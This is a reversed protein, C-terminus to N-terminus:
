KVGAKEMLKLLYESRVAQTFGQVQDIGAYLVGILNGKKDFVPSGSAGHYSVATFGFTKLNDNRSITGDSVNAQIQTKGDFFYQGFPFGITLVAVGRDPHVAKIKSLPVPTVEEPIKSSRVKFIALDEDEGDSVKEVHCNIANKQDLYDGNPVMLSHDLVGTVKVQSIYQLAGTVEFKNYLDSLKAKYYDEAAALITLDTSFSTMESDWPCAMHRNSVIHGKDGIFFGTGSSGTSNEGNYQQITNGNVIVFEDYMHRTFRKGNWSDPDWLQSLDLTGCTVKFHYDCYLWVVSKEYMECLQENTYTKGHNPDSSPWYKIAVYVVLALVCAAAAAIAAIKGFFAPAPIPNEIPIGALAIEDKRNLPVYKDPACRHGNLTTGNKSHDCIYWKGDEMQRITAHFRSVSPGTVVKDNMYHSGLSIIKKVGSPVSIDPIRSWDLPTDAFSVADGRRIPTEKGPTIRVGNLSTGNSSKDILYMDGNDLQIIEAHYGSVYKSSLIINCQGPDRGIITLKM